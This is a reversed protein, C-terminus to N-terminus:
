LLVQWSLVEVIAAWQGPGPTKLRLSRDAPVDQESSSAWRGEDIAYWRLRIDIPGKKVKLAVEGAQPFYVAYQKGPDALCFAENPQRDELLDNHPECSFVDVASTVERASRIM